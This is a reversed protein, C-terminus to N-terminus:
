EWKFTNEVHSEIQGMCVPCKKSKDQRFILFCSKCFIIHGCPAIIIKKKEQFCIICLDDEEEKLIKDINIDKQVLNIIWKKGQLIKSDESQKLFDVM